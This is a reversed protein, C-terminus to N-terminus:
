LVPRPEGDVPIIAAPAPPAAETEVAIGDARAVIRVITLGAAKAARIVREVEAQTANAARGAM